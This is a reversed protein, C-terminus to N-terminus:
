QIIQLSTLLSLENGTCKQKTSHLIDETLSTLKEAATILFLSYYLVNCVQL